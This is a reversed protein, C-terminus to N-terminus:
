LKLLSKFQEEQTNEYPGVVALNLKEEKFLEQAVRQVDEATVADVAELVEDVSLVREELLEQRGVWSAVAFSDEMQLLLRGKVFEKAKHLEEGPVPEQRAKDLEALIAQLAEEIKQVDVGAYVGMLGADQLLSAYSYVAYALGRKERVELFLRSSMGQGLITNLLSVNYRDDDFLSIGPLVVCLHAQQSPKHEVKVRTAEQEEEMPLYSGRQQKRWAALQAGIEKVAEDHEINGAVALVTGAPQYHGTLYDQMMARTLGTVSEKTGAQDRGLPHDPWILESALQHVWDSPRDLTMNIEEIIVGREKELEQEDLKSNLLMDALVDVAIPFHDQAVKAWYTTLERGTSANFVGGIGEIALAIDKATPRKTTGKFLMHELFHTIGNEKKAEYRSGVGIFFGVSVSRTHPMTSTLIRLGNDLVIKQYVEEGEGLYNNNHHIRVRHVKLAAAGPKVAIIDCIALVIFYPM